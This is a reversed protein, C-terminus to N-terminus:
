RGVGRGVAARRGKRTKQPTSEPQQPRVPFRLGIRLGEPVFDRTISGSLEGKLSAEILRSGFGGSPRDPPPTADSAPFREVWDIAVVPAAPTAELHWDVKLGGGTASLGGYKVANTVLEHAVLAFAHAQREDLVVPPGTMLHDVEALDLCQQLEGRLIAALDAQAVATGALIEQAAAMSQLRADFAETFTKVDSAGRASQRAISQIRAIHNKIRHKMEQLLLDRYAVEREAAAALARAQAAEEQRAAIALAAAAAFLVSILGVVLSGLHRQWGTGDTQWLDVRWQRGLLDIERTVAMTADPVQGAQYILLDPTAKDTIRLGIQARQVDDLAATVFDKGRFPAYIFGEAAPGAEAGAPPAGYALYVLFGIQRDPGSEQVLEVPGSMQPLGSTMARDMAARRVPDAYMDFGLAAINRSDAPELLVIVARHSQDTEPRIAASVGYQTMIETILGADEAVGSLRAFGIGQVGALDGSLNLAGAFRLFEDRSVKGRSAAFLGKTARLVVVHQELRATLMDMTLDVSRHFGAEARREEAGYVTLTIAAGLSLAVVFAAQPMLRVLLQKMQHDEALDM